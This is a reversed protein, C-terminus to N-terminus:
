VDSTLRRDFKAAANLFPNGLELAHALAAVRHQKDGAGFSACLSRGLHEAFVTKAPDQDITGVLQQVDGHVNRHSLERFAEAQRACLQLDDGFGVDEVLLARLGLAFAVPM